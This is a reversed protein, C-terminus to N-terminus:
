KTWHYLGVGLKLDAWRSGLSSSDPGLDATIQFTTMLLAEPGLNKQTASHSVMPRMLDHVPLWPIPGSGGTSRIESM